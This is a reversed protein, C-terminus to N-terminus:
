MLPLSYTEPLWRTTQMRWFCQTNFTAYIQFTIEMINNWSGMSLPKLKEEVNHIQKYAINYNCITPIIKPNPQTPNPQGGSAYCKINFQM